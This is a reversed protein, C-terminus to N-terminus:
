NHVDPRLIKPGVLLLQLLGNSEVKRYLDQNKCFTFFKTESTKAM